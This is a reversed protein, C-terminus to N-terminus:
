IQLLKSRGDHVISHPSGVHAPAPPKVRSCSERCNADGQAKRQTGLTALWRKVRRRAGLAAFLGTGFRDTCCNEPCQRQEDFGTGFDIGLVAIAKGAVVLSHRRHREPQGPLAAEGDIRCRQAGDALM